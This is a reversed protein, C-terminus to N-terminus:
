FIGNDHPLTDPIEQVVEWHEKVRGDVMRFIDIISMGPDGAHRVTHIHFITRDGDAYSAMIKMRVDPFHHARNVFFDRLGERGGTAATSHQIYDEDIYQDILSADFTFLMEHYMRTCIELNTREQESHSM